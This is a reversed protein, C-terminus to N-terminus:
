KKNEEVAEGLRRVLRSVCEAEGEDKRVARGGVVIIKERSKTGRAIQLDSKPVDLAQEGERNWCLYRRTM